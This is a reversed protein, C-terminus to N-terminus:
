YYVKTVPWIKGPALIECPGVLFLPTRGTMPETTGLERATADDSRRVTLEVLTIVCQLVYRCVMICSEGHAASGAGVFSVAM